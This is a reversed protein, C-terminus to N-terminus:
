LAVVTRLGECGSQMCLDLFSQATEKEPGGAQIVEKARNAATIYCLVAVSDDAVGGNELDNKLNEIYKGLNM